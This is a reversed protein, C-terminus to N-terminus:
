HFQATAITPSKKHRIHVTWTLSIATILFFTSAFWKVLEKEYVIYDYLSPKGESKNV